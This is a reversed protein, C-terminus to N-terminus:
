EEALYKIGDNVNEGFNERHIICKEIFTPEVKM